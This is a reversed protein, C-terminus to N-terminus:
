NNTGIIELSLSPTEGSAYRATVVGFNIQEYITIADDANTTYVAGLKSLDSFLKEYIQKAYNGEAYVYCSTPNDYDNNIVEIYKEKDDVTLVAKYGAILDKLKIGATMDINNIATDIDSFMDLQEASTNVKLAIWGNVNFESKDAWHSVKLEDISEFPNYTDQSNDKENLSDDRQLVTNRDKNDTSVNGGSTTGNSTGDTEGTAVNIKYDDRSILIQYASVILQIVEIKTIAEKWRCTDSNGLLGVKYASAVAKYIEDPAGTGNQNLSYQLQYAKWYKKFTLEKTKKNQTVYGQNYAVKGANTIDSYNSDKSTAQEFDDPFLTKMVLYIAEGRTMPQMLADMTLSADEHTLEDYKYNLYSNDAVISDLYTYENFVTNSIYDENFGKYKVPTEAKALAAMVEARSPIRYKDFYNKDGNSTDSMLNFYTSLFYYMAETDSNADDEYYDNVIAKIEAITDSDIMKTTFYKNFLVSRLNANGTWKGNDTVYMPGNKHNVDFTFVKFLKDIKSRMKSATTLKDLEVWTPTAVTGNAVEGAVSNDLPIPTIAEENNIKNLLNKDVKGTGCATCSLMAVSLVVATLKKLLGIRKM